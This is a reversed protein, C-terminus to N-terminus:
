ADGYREVRVQATIAHALMMEVGCQRATVEGILRSAAPTMRQYTVTKLFRGVWLGGTYRAARGTPLIHNTGICKDGYAVTTEEGIFLSGYNRLRQVYYATWDRDAIGKLLSYGIFHLRKFAEVSDEVSQKTHDFKEMWSELPIGTRSDSGPDAIAQRVRLFLALESEMVHVLHEQITWADELDPRFNLLGPKTQPPVFRDFSGANKKMKDLLENRNKESDM